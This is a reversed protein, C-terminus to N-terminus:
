AAVEPERLWTQAQAFHEDLAFRTPESGAYKIAELARLWAALAARQNPELQANGVWQEDTLAALPQGTRADLTQRVLRTLQFLSTRADLEGAHVQARWREAQEWASLVPIEVRRRSRRKWYIAGAGLAVLAAAAGALPWSSSSVAPASHLEQRLERPADEQAALEARVVLATSECVVTGSAGAQSWRINPAPWTHEGAELAMLKWEMSLGDARRLQQPRELAVWLPPAEREEVEFQTDAAGAIELKWLVPEGVAVERPTPTLSARIESALCCALLLSSIM